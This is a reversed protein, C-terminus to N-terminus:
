ATSGGGFTNGGRVVGIVKPVALAIVAVVALVLFVPDILGTLTFFASLALIIMIWLFIPMHFAETGIAYYFMGVIVFISAIFILLGIGNTAPNTDSSCDAFIVNCALDAIGAGVEEGVGTLEDDGLVCRLLNANAPNDCSPDSPDFTPVFESVTDDIVISNVNSNCTVFTHTTNSTRHTAIKKDTVTDCVSPTTLVVNADIDVISINNTGENAVYLRRGTEDTNISCNRPTTGVTITSELALASSYKKTRANSSDIAWYKSNVDDVCVGSFIDTVVNVGLQVTFSSLSVTELEYSSAGNMADGSLVMTNNPIDLDCGLVGNTGTDTFLPTLVLTSTNVSGFGDNTCYYLIENTEDYILDQIINATGTALSGAIGLSQSLKYVKDNTVAYIFLTDPNWEIARASASGTLTVNFLVTYTTLPTASTKWAYAQGANQGIVYATHTDSGEASSYDVDSTTTGTAFTISVVSVADAYLITSSYFGFVLLLSFIVSLQLRNNNKSKEM